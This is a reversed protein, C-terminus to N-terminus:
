RQDDLLGRDPAWGFLGGVLVIPTYALIVLWRVDPVGVTLLVATGWAVALLAVRGVPHRVPRAMGAAVVTGAAGLIAIVPAADARTVGALVSLTADPDAALGFPFGPGGFMWFLGLAAYTGSWIAAAGM